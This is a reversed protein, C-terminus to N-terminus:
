VLPSSQAPFTMLQSPQPLAIRTGVGRAPMGVASGCAAVRPGIGSGVMRGLAGAGEVAGIGLPRYPPPSATPAAGLRGSRPSFDDSTRFM